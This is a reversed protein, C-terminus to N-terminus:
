IDFNLLEEKKYKNFKLKNFQYINDPCSYFISRIYAVNKSDFSSLDLNNLNVCNYFMFSMDTVKKTDFSSLDLNNLNVCNYFMYRMDTVNKTNFFSLDLNNLNVCNYFMSNMNTVNQTNFSSLDLYNLNKNFNIFNIKIINECNSFMYNCDSLVINFKLKIDYVEAKKPIFNKQYKYKKNNIFLETNENNLKKLGDNYYGFFSIEKNVDDEEIKIVINIENTYKNVSKNNKNIYPIEKLENCMEFMYDMDIINKYNLCFLKLNKLNYCYYLMYSMNKVNRIDFSSLDLNNLKQCFSFMDSMDTVNRTDFFLNNIYELNKCFHFMYKMSSIYSTNFSIFNIKIINTCNAFMFSCDTLNIKFKIKINYEGEKEPIFYKKFEYQKNNIYLETSEKNLVDLNKNNNEKDLFFIEKDIDDYNISMLINIENQRSKEIKRNNYKKKYEKIFENIINSFLIGKNYYKFKNCFIGILKHNSLNFILSLNNNNKENFYSSYKIESNHINNIVSYTVNIDNKNNYDIIYISEKNYHNDIENEYLNNDLELYNIKNNEKIQVVALDLDKNFYLNRHKINEFEIKNLENNIYINIYNSFSYHIIQYNTIMIPIFINHYKIKTFLCIYRTDKMIGFLNPNMQELIRQTNQKSIPKPYESM